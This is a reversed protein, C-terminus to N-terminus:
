KYTSTILKATINACKKITDGFRTKGQCKNKDNKVHRRRKYYKDDYSDSSELSSSDSLSPDSDPDAPVNWALNHPNNRPNPNVKHIVIESSSDHLPSLM